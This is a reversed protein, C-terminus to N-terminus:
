DIGKFHWIFSVRFTDYEWDKIGHIYQLKLSKKGIRRQLNLNFVLPQDKENKYGAYGSLSTSATWANKLLELGIGYMLADNQLNLEDNTQWSYFGASAFPRWSLLTPSQFDKSFSLDFFYGPSDSYRAAYYAGGSTTKCAMRFLTNPFKRNKSLQILTSFYLDGTTIGNGDRERAIREDRIEDSMQYKEFIVGYAEIAIKGKAFPLMFYGSIDQTNDGDRFHFSSSIQLETESKILGNLQEPVPLANPGLYGPSIVLWMRWGPMGPEWGHLNNWWDSDSEQSISQWPFCLILFFMLRLIKRFRTNKKSVAM